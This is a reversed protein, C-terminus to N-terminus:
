PQFHFNSLAEGELDDALFPKLPPLGEVQRGAAGVAPIEILIDELIRTRKPNGPIVSTHGAPVFLQPHDFPAQEWRVREDTLALLFDVMETKRAPDNKLAEIDNIEPDLDALNAERFDGGRVYFDVVQMLTIMGGNRMYPGTLEINRLGPTKVAGDAAIRSVLLPDDPCITPPEAAFDNVCNPTAVPEFPLLEDLHLAYQRAFSLPLPNGALDLLGAVVGGRGLDEHTPRVGINYFGIDYNALAGDGMAMLEILGAEEPDRAVSVSAGTFEAGVHCAICATADALFLSMGRQQRETLATPDGEMFRDFPSDDAVLTAQYLQVALGFFLSFNAEMQSFADVAEGTQMLIGSAVTGEGPRLLFSRPDDRSPAMMLGAQEEFLVVEDANWFEDQFAAQIMAVYTTDLGLGSPHRLGALSSDQSHVEQKALPRLTLMKRGIDPWSRGRWSMELDSLPPGVAQSALSANDLLYENETPNATLNLPQLVGGNNIWVHAEVDMVGFPNVGNFFHNARGDWFQTFNFVANIVTPATRPEVQRVNRGDRSFMQDRIITGSDVDRGPNVGEFQRLVVGQSSFVDNVNRVVDSARNEPDQLQFFPFDERSLSRDAGAVIDFNRDGAIVGPNIQNRIRNDNGAHFHCSACASLGDSGVQMDWFLAKGLRIAAQKDKVFKDLHAPEPVPITKLSAPQAGVAAAALLLGALVGAGALGGARVSFLRRTSFVVKEAVMCNM